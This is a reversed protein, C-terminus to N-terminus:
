SYVYRIKLCSFKVSHVLLHQFSLKKTVLREFTLKQLLTQWTFKGCFEVSREDNQLCDSKRIISRTVLLLVGFFKQKVFNFSKASNHM